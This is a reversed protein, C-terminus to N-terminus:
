SEKPKTEQILNLMNEKYNEYCAKASGHHKIAYELVEKKASLVWQDFTKLRAFWHKALIYSKEYNTM